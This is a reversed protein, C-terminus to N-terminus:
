DTLAGILASECAIPTPARFDETVVVRIQEGDVVLNDPLPEVIPGTVRLGIAYEKENGPSRIIGLSYGGRYNRLLHRQVDSQELLHTLASINM